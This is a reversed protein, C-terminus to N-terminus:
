SATIARPSRVSASHRITSGSRGASRPRLDRGAHAIHFISNRRRGTEDSPQALRVPFSADIMSADLARSTRGCIRRMPLCHKTTLWFLDSM